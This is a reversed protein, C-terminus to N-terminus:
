RKAMRKPRTKERQRANLEAKNENYKKSDNTLTENWNRNPKTPELFFFFYNLKFLNLPVIIFIQPNKPKLKGQKEKRPYKKEYLGMKKYVNKGQIDNM